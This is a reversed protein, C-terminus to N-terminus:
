VGARQFALDTTWTKSELDINHTVSIIILDSGWKDFPKCDANGPITLNGLLDYVSSISDEKDVMDSLTAQDLMGSYVKVYCRAWPVDPVTTKTRSEMIPFTPVQQVSTGQGEPVRKIAMGIVYNRLNEFDPQKNSTMINTSDYGVSRDVGLTLPLGNVGLQYFYIMGDRVVYTHGTDAMVDDLATKVTTGSKWDFRATNIDETASLAMGGNAATMDHVIGAYRCLYECAMALTEGDMFPPNILAIDDLKRELGVLPVTWTADGVSDANSIGMGLGKFIVGGVTGIGGAASLVVAGISQVAVAEQGAVGYKDIVM